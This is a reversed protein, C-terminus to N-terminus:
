QRSDRRKETTQRRDNLRDSIYGVQRVESGRNNGRGGNQVEVHCKDDTKFTERTIISAEVWRTWRRLDLVSVNSEVPDPRGSAAM